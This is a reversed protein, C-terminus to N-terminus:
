FTGYADMNGQPGFDFLAVRGSRVMQAWHMMNKTSTGGVDNNAMMPIRRLNVHIGDDFGGFCEMVAWTVHPMYRTLIQLAQTFISHVYLVADMYTMAFEPGQLIDLTDVFASHIGGTYLVPAIGVFAKYSKHM